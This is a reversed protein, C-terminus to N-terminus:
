KQIDKLPVRVEFSGAAYAAVQYPPLEILLTDGDVAFTSYNEVTPALGAAQAWASWTLDIPMPRHWDFHILPRDGAGAQGHHRLQPSAVPAFRDHLLLTASLGAHHGHGYRIALDATGSHLNVPENSAHVNLDIGPHLAQFAALRPLLWKAAFAPTASLTVSQREPARLREFGSAITDFGDRVAAFLTLGQPTLEVARVKRVFLPGGLEQELTRVRHSIATATVALEDAANKFSRLRAAAEFARLASLSPLRRQM